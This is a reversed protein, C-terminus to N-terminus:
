DMFKVSYKIHRISQWRWISWIKMKVFYIQSYKLVIMYKPFWFVPTVNVQEQESVNFRMRLSNRNTFYIHNLYNTQVKPLNQQCNIILDSNQDFFFFKRLAIKEREFHVSKQFSTCRRSFKFYVINVFRLGDNMPMAMRKHYPTTEDHPGKHSYLSQKSQRWWFKINSCLNQHIQIPTWFWKSVLWRSM